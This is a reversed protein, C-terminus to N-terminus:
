PIKPHPPTLKADGFSASCFFHQSIPWLPGGCRRRKRSVFRGKRGCFGVMTQERTHAGGLATEEQCACGWFHAVFFFLSSSRIGRWSEQGVTVDHFIGCGGTICGLGMVSGMWKGNGNHVHGGVWGGGVAGCQM